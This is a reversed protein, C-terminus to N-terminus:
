NEIPSIQVVGVATVQIASVTDFGMADLFVSDGPQVMIDGAVATGAGATLRVYAAVSATVRIRNPKNGDSCTPIAVSASAAGSAVTAGPFKCISVTELQAGVLPRTNVPTNPTAGM